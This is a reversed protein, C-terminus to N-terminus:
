APEAKGEGGGQPSAKLHGPPDAQRPWAEPVERQPGPMGLERADKGSTLQSGTVWM